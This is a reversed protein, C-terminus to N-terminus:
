HRTPRHNRNPTTGTRSTCLWWRSNTPTGWENTEDPGFASKQFIRYIAM